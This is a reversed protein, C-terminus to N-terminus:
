GLFFHVMQAGEDLALARNFAVQAFLVRHVDLAQHFHSRVPAQAVAAAKRRASLARVGVRARSFARAAPGHCILFLRARLGLRASVFQAIAFAGAFLVLLFFLKLFFSFFFTGKPM